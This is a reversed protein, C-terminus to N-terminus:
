VTGVLGWPPHQESLRGYVPVSAVDPPNAICHQHQHTMSFMTAALRELTSQSYIGCPEAAQLCCAVEAIKGLFNM